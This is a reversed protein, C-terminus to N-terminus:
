SSFISTDATPVHYCYSLDDDVIGENVCVSNASSFRIWGNDDYTCNNGDAHTGTYTCTATISSVLSFEVFEIRPKTYPKKGAKKEM